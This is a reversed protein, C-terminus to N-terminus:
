KEPKRNQASTIAGLASFRDSGTQHASKLPKAANGM